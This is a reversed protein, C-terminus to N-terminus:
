PLLKRRQWRALGFLGGFAALLLPLAFRPWKQRLSLFIRAEAPLADGRITVTLGLRGDLGSGPQGLYLALLEPPQDWNTSLRWDSRDVQSTLAEFLQHPDGSHHFIIEVEGWPFYRSEIDLRDSPPQVPVGRWRTELTGLGLPLGVIVLCLAILPVPKLSPLFGMWGLVAGVLSLLAVVILGIPALFLFLSNQFVAIQSLLVGCAAGIAAGTLVAKRSITTADTQSGNEM